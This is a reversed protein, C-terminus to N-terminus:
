ILLRGTCAHMGAYGTIRPRGYQYRPRPLAERVVQAISTAVISVPVPATAFDGADGKQAVAVSGRDSNCGEAHTKAFCSGGMCAAKMACCPPSQMEVGAQSRPAAMCGSAFASGFLSAMFLFLVATALRKM